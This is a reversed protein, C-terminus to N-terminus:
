DEEAINSETAGKLKERLTNSTGYRLSIDREQSILQDYIIRRM